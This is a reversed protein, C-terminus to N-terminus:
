KVIGNNEVKKQQTHSRMHLRKQHLHEFNENCITCTYPNVADHLSKHLRFRRDTQFSKGCLECTYLREDTHVKMHIKLAAQM